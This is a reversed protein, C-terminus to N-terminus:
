KAKPIEGLMKDFDPDSKVKPPRGVSNSHVELFKPPKGPENFKNMLNAAISADCEFVQGKVVSIGNGGEANTIGHVVCSNEGEYRLKM